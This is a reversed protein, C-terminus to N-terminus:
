NIYNRAGFLKSGIRIMTAGEEIAYQYDDSMGMSLETFYPNDKAYKSKVAEFILKLNRFEEKVQIFNDTFTAMGMLGMINVNKFDENQLEEMFSNLEIESLGFKTDEKAIHIQILCSIIRSHKTAENNITRLLKLSDVGHILHVFPAIYKVKNSQLHGIMHWEIDKPLNESKRVLEQVKNEGFARQGAQYLQLIDEESKTKSVAILKVESSLEKVFKLYKELTESM